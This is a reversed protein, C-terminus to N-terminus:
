IADVADRTERLSFSPHLERHLRIAAMTDGSKKLRRVDDDNAVIKPSNELYRFAAIKEQLEQTVNRANNQHAAFDLWGFIASLVILILPLIGNAGFTDRLLFGLFLMGFVASLDKFIEAKKANTLKM